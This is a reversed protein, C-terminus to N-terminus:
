LKKFIINVDGNYDRDHNKFNKFPAKYIWVGFYHILWVFVQQFRLL